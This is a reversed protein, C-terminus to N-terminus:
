ATASHRSILRESGRERIEVTVMNGPRFTGDTFDIVLKEGPEWTEGSCGSGGIWQVGFHHTQIFRYGNLTSIVAPLPDQNRFFLAMLQDNELSETGTHVLIVRSDYNLLASNRDSTHHIAEIQLFSPAAPKWTLNPLSFLLLVLVALLITLAVM